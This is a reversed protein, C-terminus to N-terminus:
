LGLRNRIGRANFFRFLRRLVARKRSTYPYWGLESKATPLRPVTISETRCYKRIGNAGHRTGIGSQKWGGMPIELVQYHAVVDNVDCAGAEIRRAIREGESADGAFVTGGLGYTTDNALRLAEEADAVKMVPIVPGFTEERMVKMSPKAEAIV